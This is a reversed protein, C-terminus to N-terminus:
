RSTTSYGFFPCGTGNAKNDPLPTPCHVESRCFILPSFHDGGHNKMTEVSGYAAGTCFFHDSGRRTKGNGARKKRSKSVSFHNYILTFPTSPTPCMNQTVGRSLKEQFSSPIAQGKGYM